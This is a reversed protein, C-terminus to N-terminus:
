GASSPSMVLSLFSALSHTEQYPRPLFPFLAQEESLRSIALPDLYSVAHPALFPCPLHALIHQSM